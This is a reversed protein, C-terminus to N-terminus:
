EGVRPPTLNAMSHHAIAKRLQLVTDEQLHFRPLLATMMLSLAHFKQTQPDHSNRLDDYQSTQTLIMIILDTLLRQEASNALLTQQAAFNQLLTHLSSELQRIQQKHWHKVRPYKEALDAPSRFMFRFLQQKDLVIALFYFFDEAVVKNLTAPKFLALMADSHWQVLGDIIQEKGKFHYYLNGPSINLEMAIDVSTVSNEGHENFLTLATALIRQATKGAM